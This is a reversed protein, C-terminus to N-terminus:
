FEEKFSHKTSKIILQKKKGFFGKILLWITFSFEGIVGPLIVILEFIDKYSSYNRLLFNAFSDVLYGVGAVFLLIGIFKPIYNSKVILYGLLLLHIGFFILGILWTSNFAELYLTVQTQLQSLELVKSYEPNVTLQLVSVLNYLALGFMTANVLRLWAALLSLKQNVEKLLLYLTWALLLDFIVMLIFSVIAWRFLLENEIINNLTAASNGSVILNELVFFNSFFGTVFIILYGLGTLKLINKITEM